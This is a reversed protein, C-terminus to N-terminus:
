ESQTVAPLLVEIPQVLDPSSLDVSKGRPQFGGKTAQIRVTDRRGLEIVVLGKSNTTGSTLEEEGSESRVHVRAGSIPGGGSDGVVRISFQHATAGTASPSGDQQADLPRWCAGALLLLLWAVTSKVFTRGNMSLNM